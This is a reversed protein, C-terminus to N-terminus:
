SNGKQKKNIIDKYISSQRVKNFLEKGKESKIFEEAEIFLRGGKSHIKIGM